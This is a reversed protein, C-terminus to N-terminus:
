TRPARAKKPPPSSPSADPEQTLLRAERAVLMRLLGSANLGHHASVAELKAREADTLRLTFV